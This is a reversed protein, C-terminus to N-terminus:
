QPMSTGQPATFPPISFGPPPPQAPGPGPPPPPYTPATPPPYAPDSYNYAPPPNDFRKYAPPQAPVGMPQMGYAQPRAAGQFQSSTGSYVVTVNSAPALRTPAPNIVRGSHSQYKICCCVVAVIIAVAIIGAFICGIILGVSAGCCYKNYTSGCCGYTCYTSSSGYYYYSYKYCFEGAQTGTVYFLLIFLLLTVTEM